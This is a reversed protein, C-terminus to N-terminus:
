PRTERNDPAAAANNNDADDGFFHHREAAWAAECGSEPSTIARCRRLTERSPDALQDETVYSVTIHPLAPQRAAMVMIALMLGALTAGAAIKAAPAM